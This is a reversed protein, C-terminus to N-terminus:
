KASEELLSNAACQFLHASDVKLATALKMLTKTRLNIHKGSEIEWVHTKTLGSLDAVQQLSLNLSARYTRVAQSLTM